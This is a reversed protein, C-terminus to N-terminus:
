QQGDGKDDLYRFRDIVLEITLKVARAFHPQGKDFGFIDGAANRVAESRKPNVKDDHGDRHEKRQDKGAAERRLPM